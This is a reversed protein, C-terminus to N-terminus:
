QTNAYITKSIIESTKNWSYKKATNLGDPNNRINNTYVFRMYDIISNKVKIDIKAWNGQGYFWKNDIAPELDDIDVLYSNKENCYETHASYNTCIIPKNVAMTELIENNWGEARSVFIGCDALNIVENLNQQTPLRPFIKIKEKLKNNEVLSYWYNNEDESLFPNFPVLWLEVNDLSNFAKEFCELVIDHSKRKEWKGINIFVYKEQKNNNQLEKFVSTDVGLPAVQINTTINNKLLIQKGWESATFVIDCSNIHHQEVKTLKDIEFFPFSCFLGKGVRMSLDNPHWIKLTPANYDFLQANVLGEKVLSVDTESNLSLKQINSM